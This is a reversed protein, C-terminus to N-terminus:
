MHGIDRVDILQIDNGISLFIHDFRHCQNFSPQLFGILQTMM